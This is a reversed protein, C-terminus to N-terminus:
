DLLCTVRRKQEATAAAAAKSVRAEEQCKQEAAAAAAAKAAEIEAQLKKKAAAALFAQAGVHELLKVFKKRSVRSLSFADVDEPELLTLDAVTKIDAATIKSMDDDSSLGFEELLKRLKEEEGRRIDEERQKREQQRRMEEVKVREEEEKRRM